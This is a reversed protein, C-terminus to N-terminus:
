TLHPIKLNSHSDDAAKLNNQAVCVFITVINVPLFNLFYLDYTWSTRSQILKRVQIRYVQVGNALIKEFKVWLDFSNLYKEINYLILDYRSRPTGVKEKKISSVNGLIIEYANKQYLLSACHIFCFSMRDQLLHCCVFTKVRMLTWEFFNKNEKKSINTKRKKLTSQHNPEHYTVRPLLGRLFRFHCSFRFYYFYLYNTFNDCTAYWIDSVESLM